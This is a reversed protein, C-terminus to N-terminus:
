LMQRVLLPDATRIRRSGRIPSAPRCDPKKQIRSRRLSAQLLLRICFFSPLTATRRRINVYGGRLPLRIACACRLPIRGMEAM